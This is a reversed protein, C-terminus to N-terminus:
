KQEFIGKNKMHRAWRESGSEYDSVNEKNETSDAESPETSDVTSEFDCVKENDPVLDRYDDIPNNFIKHVRKGLIDIKLPTKFHFYHGSSSNELYYSSRGEKEFGYFYKGYLLSYKNHKRNLITELDKWDFTRGKVNLINESDNVECIQRRM